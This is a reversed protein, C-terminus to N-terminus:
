FEHSLSVRTTTKKNLRFRRKGPPDEYPDVGRPPVELFPLGHPRGPPCNPCFFTQFILVHFISFM